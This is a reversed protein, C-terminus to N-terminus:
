IIERTFKQGNLQGDFLKNPIRWAISEYVAPEINKYKAANLIGYKGNKIYFVYKKGTFGYWEYPAISDAIDYPMMDDKKPPRTLYFWGIAFIILLISPMIILLVDMKRFEIKVKETAEWMTDKTVHVDVIELPEYASAIYGQYKMYEPFSSNYDYVKDKIIICWVIGYILFFVGCTLLLLQIVRAVVPKKWQMNSTSLWQEKNQKEMKVHVPTTVEIKQSSQNAHMDDVREGCKSCFNSGDTLPNGCYKCYM